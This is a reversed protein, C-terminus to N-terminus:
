IILETSQYHQAFGWHKEVLLIIQQLFVNQLPSLSM